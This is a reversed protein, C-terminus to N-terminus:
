RETVPFDFGRRFPEDALTFHWWEGAYNRFGAQRMLGVLLRRNARAEDGVARSETRSKEDFCDFGTGFDLSAPLSAGCGSSGLSSAPNSGAISLDVTSGRAHASRRGVYGKAILHSRRTEPYWKRDTGGGQGVWRVFHAVAREPRYCDHVVLTRGQQQLKEQVMVLARAARETLICAPAQYGPVPQRTFNDFGAYRMDQVITPAVDRLRVFGQPLGQASAPLSAALMTAALLSKAFIM